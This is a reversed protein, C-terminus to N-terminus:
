SDFEGALIGNVWVSYHGGPFSGLPLTAEYPELVQICIINPDVLTYVEVVIRKEADPEAISVRLQHCPTPLNGSIMLNVQVPFSELLLLGADDLFFTGKDLLKDGKQPLLQQTPLLLEPTPSIDMEATGEPLSPKTSDPLPMSPASTSVAQGMVCAALMGPLLLLLLIRKM